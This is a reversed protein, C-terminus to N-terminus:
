YYLDLNLGTKTKQVFVPRSINQLCFAMSPSRHPIVRHTLLKSTTCLMEVGPTPAGAQQHYFFQAIPANDTIAPNAKIAFKTDWDKGFKAIYNSQYEDLLKKATSIDGFNMDALPQATIIIGMDKAPSHFLVSSHSRGHNNDEADLAYVPHAQPLLKNTTCVWELVLAKSAAPTCSDFTTATPFLFYPTTGPDVFEHKNRRPSGWDRMASQVMELWAAYKWHGGPMLIIFKSFLSEKSCAM